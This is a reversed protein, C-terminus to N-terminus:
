LSAIAAALSQRFPEGELEVGVAAAEAMLSDLRHTEGEIYERLGPTDAHKRQFRVLAAHRTATDHATGLTKQSRVLTEQVPGREPGLTDEFLDVVYRLWKCAIRLQHLAEPSGEPGCGDCALVAEYRRWIASGARYRVLLPAGTDTKGPKGLRRLDRMLRAYDKGDLARLLQKAARKRRRRLYATWDALVAGVDANAAIAEAANQAMVDLDRARGLPRAVWRLRRSTKRAVRPELMGVEVFMDLAARLGRTAVHMDHVGEPDEGTRIVRESARLHKRYRRITKSMLPAMPQEGGPVRPSQTSQPSAATPATPEPSVVHM